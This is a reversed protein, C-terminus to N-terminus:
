PKKRRRIADRVTRAGAEIDEDTYTAVPDEFLESVDLGVRRALAALASHCKEHDRKCQELEATQTKIFQDIRKNLTESLSAEATKRTAFLTGALTLITAVIATLGKGALDDTLPTPDPM